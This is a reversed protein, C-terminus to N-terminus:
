DSARSCGAVARQRAVGARCRDPANVVYRLAVAPWRRLDAPSWGDKRVEPFGLIHLLTHEQEAVPSVALLADLIREVATQITSACRAFATPTRPPDVIDDVSPEVYPALGRLKSIEALFMRAGFAANEATIPASPAIATVLRALERVTYARPLASPARAIVRDRETLTAGLILDSQEILDTSLRQAQFGDHDLGLNTVTARALRHMPHGPIADTGASSITWPQAKAALRAQLEHRSIREAMPSRCQNAICVYLIRFSGPTATSNGPWANASHYVTM